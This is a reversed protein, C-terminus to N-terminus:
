LRIKKTLDKKCINLGTEISFLLRDVSDYSFFYKAFLTDFKGINKTYKNKNFIFDVVSDLLKKENFYLSRSTIRTNIVYEKIYEVGQISINNSNLSYSINLTNQYLTDITDKSINITVFTKQLILYGLSNYFYFDTTKRPSYINNEKVIESIKKEKYYPSYFQEYIPFKNSVGLKVFPQEYFEPVSYMKDYLQARCFSASIALVLFLFFYLLPKRM